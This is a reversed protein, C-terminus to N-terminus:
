THKLEDTLYAKGQRKDYILAHKNLVDRGLISPIRLIRENVEPHKLFCLSSLRETHTKKNEKHFILRAEKLIYTNVAGGIGLMGKDLKELAEYDIGLRIADKDSITTKTAGTDVLFEITAYLHLIESELV